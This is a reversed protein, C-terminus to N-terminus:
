DLFLPSATYRIFDGGKQNLFLRILNEGAPKAVPETKSLRLIAVLELRRIKDYETQM